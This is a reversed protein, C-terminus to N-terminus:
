VGTAIKGQKKLNITSCLAYMTELYPVSVGKAKARRVANGLIVETEMPSNRLADLHMSPKYGPGISKVRKCQRTLETDVDFDYGYSNATVVVDKMVNKFLESTMPNSLVGYTDLDTTVCLSATAAILILKQWRPREIDPVMQISVGGKSFLELLQEAQQRGDVNPQPFEAMVLNEDGMMKIVGVSTQSSAIYAVISILTNTPFASALPEEIGIGNQILVITTKGITVAPRIIESIDYVDPLAKMTVIVYDYEDQAAEETTRFVRSPQFVGEGFKSSDITFGNENVVNYNSRCVTMVEANQSLRWGYICGLAGTGVMLVKCKQTDVM